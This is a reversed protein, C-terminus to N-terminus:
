KLWLKLLERQRYNIYRRITDVSRTLWREESDMMLFDHLEAISYDEGYKKLFSGVIYGKFYNADNTSYEYERYYKFKEWARSM